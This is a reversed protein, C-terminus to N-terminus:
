YCRKYSLKFKLCDLLVVNEEFYFINESIRDSVRVCVLRHLVEFVRALDIDTQPRLLASFLRLVISKVRM